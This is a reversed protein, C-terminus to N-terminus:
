ESTICNCKCRVAAMAELAALSRYHCSISDDARGSARKGSPPAFFILAAVRRRDGTVRCRRQQELGHEGM